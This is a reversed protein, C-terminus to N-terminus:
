NVKFENDFRMLGGRKAVARRARKEVRSLGMRVFNAEEFEERDKMVKDLSLGGVRESSSAAATSSTAYGTGHASQTEPRHDFQTRLEQLLRSNLARHKAHRSLNASSASSSPDPFHTPAVRPPKYVNSPSSEKYGGDVGEGEEAFSAILNSPNPKFALPNQMAAATASTSSAEAGGINSSSSVDVLGAHDAMSVAKILKDLQYKLKSELPKCKELVVRLEVLRDIIPDNDEPGQQQQHQIAVLKKFLYM